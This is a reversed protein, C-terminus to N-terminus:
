LKGEHDMIVHTVREKSTNFKEGCMSCYFVNKDRNAIVTLKRLELHLNGNVYNEVTLPSGSLYELKKDSEKLLTAVRIIQWYLM